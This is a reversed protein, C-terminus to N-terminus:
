PTRGAPVPRVTCSRLLEPAEEDGPDPVAAPLVIVRAEPVGEARLHAAAVRARDEALLRNKEANGEPSYSGQVEFSWEGASAALAHLRARDEDDLASSGQDFWVILPRPTPPRVWLVYNAAVAAQLNQAQGGGVIAVDVVGANATMVVVGDQGPQLPHGAVTLADGPRGAVVLGGQTPAPEPPPLPESAPLERARSDDAEVRLVLDPPLGPRLRELEESTVWQCYPHPLWINAQPAPPPGPYQVVTRPPPPEPPAPTRVVGLQLAFTEFSVGEVIFVAQTRLALRGAVPLDLAFGAAGAPTPEAGLRAGYGAYLSFAPAYRQAPSLSLRLEPRMDFLPSEYPGFGLETTFAASLRPNRWVIASGGVGIERRFPAPDGGTGVQAHLEWGPAAVVTQLLTLTLTM